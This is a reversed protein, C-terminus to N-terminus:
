FEVRIGFAIWRAANTRNPPTYTATIVGFAAPNTYSAAPNNFNQHNFINFFDASFRTRIRETVTTIKGVSVDLNWFGLGRMPNARGTRTDQSLLVPRFNAFVAAPDTFLNLGTGNAASANTGVGGSGPIGKNVSTSAVPRIPVLASNNGLTVTDGWVQSGETVTLPPGSLDSVIGSAYWGGIVRDLVPNNSSLKHGKGAPVDYVWHANFVHTRDYNSPGYEVGPYFSNTYVAASNQWLLFDDLTKSFTYNAGFQLGHSFRKNLTVLLGNFNTQGIYTRMLELQAEDNNYPQLGMATRYTGLSQFISSVNGNRFNSALAQAVYATATGNFNILRPYGALQNEFWPQTAATGGARLATAVADFAQAFSQGSASDVFMYPSQTFNISNPLRRGFRGVYAAEFVLNGPIERQITVSVNYSRGVKTDPDVQFSLTEGFPRSPIVPTTVPGVTPLPISGDVGVRYSSAGVNATGASANCNAGPTGSANCAPRQVNINQGFGGGLMPIMINQVLNSRDYVIAFGGRLVTKREGLLRSLFGKERGPVWAFSVRPAVDGWDINYVPVNAKKVPMWGITPNYIQGALAGKLKADLFAAATLLKGTSADVQVTQRGLEETPASQWGYSLGLTLTLSKTARWQDQGFFYTAYEKTQNVLFNGFPLPNLQGDRVALISVNDVLGLTSAYFRDWNTADTSRVCNTTVSGGCTVPRNAASVTLFSQDGDVLAVLSTLSGIVKDARAHTYPLSRFQGGFQMTHSGRIWTLDDILQYDKNWNEQYRARQTDLDIPSDLFATVGSGISLAVPGASTSTGPINMIGAAVTPPTAQNANTDRVYGFRSVNFLTPRIQWTLSGMMVQGRRPSSVMSRPQGNMISIDGAGQAIRRWYTYSGNFTLKETVNHDLRWVGYDEQIPTPINALYGTTNLGDGGAVNGAPMLAWQAKVAPSIGLGRPDCPQDGSPGCVATTALNYSIVNGATDRFRVIGQKLTDTPVTRTAQTVQSFRRGEYNAFFFTKDKIIRGGFRGGFRKDMIKPKAIGARNNDWTAANLVSNQFYGYGAGHFTNTGRRGVLMMQGGSSRELSANPNALNLRFEEVSDAPTPVVTDAAVVGQTIDIGDMTVTNQDEIAGTIRLQLQTGGGVTPVAGPQLGMLETVNRQLTPLRLVSDTSLVNGIQADTTQLEVTATARVEVIQSEGGVELTVPLNYSRNVQVTLNPVTATRFGAMKVTITYAGPTVSPFVYQGAESTPQTLTANTGVNVLQVEAKPVVAGSPDTITGIVKGSTATQAAATSAFAVIAWLAVLLVTWAAVPQRVSGRAPLGIQNIDERKNM